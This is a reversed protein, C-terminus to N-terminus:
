GLIESIIRDRGSHKADYLYADAMKMLNGPTRSEGLQSTCVLGGSVSVGIMEDGAPIQIKRIKGMLRNAASIAHKADTQGYIVAFVCHIEVSRQSALPIIKCGGPCAGLIRRKYDVCRACGPQGLPCKM